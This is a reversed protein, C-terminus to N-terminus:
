RGVERRNVRTSGLNWRGRARLEELSETSLTSAIKLEEKSPQYCSKDSM